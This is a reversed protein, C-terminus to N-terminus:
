NRDMSEFEMIARTEAGLLDNVGLGLPALLEKAEDFQNKEFHEMVSLLAGAPGKRGLLSECIDQSLNLEDIVNQLSIQFLVDILSFVGTLFAGDAVSKDCTAKLALLEMMRARMAARELLPNAKMDEGEGAFLLLTVWKQLNRYGLLAISQGISTIKRGTYFSASNMFKLLKYNLEPTRKFHTELIHFEAEKALLRSLELLVAQAPSVSKATILSPKAFFYGQFLDFGLGLCHDFDDKTEVKEALLKLSHKKLRKVMAGLDSRDYMLIDLKVFGVIDFLTVFSEDFVFDDLALEYGRHKVNKCLDVFDSDIKVTELIEFVTAKTPLLDIMDNKLIEEDVNIFGKREGILREMGINNLANVMVGATAEINRRVVASTAASGNRFLLEYGFINKRGDLIPQRGIFVDNL